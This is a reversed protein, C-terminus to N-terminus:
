EGRLIRNVQDQTVPNGWSLRRQAWTVVLDEPSLRHAQQLEKRALATRHERGDMIGLILYPYPDYPNRRLAEHLADREQKRDGAHAALAARALAPQESWPNLRAATDLL